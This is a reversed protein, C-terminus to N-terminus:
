LLTTFQWIFCRKVMVQHQYRGTRWQWKDWLKVALIYGMLIFNVKLTIWLRQRLAWIMNKGKTGGRRVKLRDGFIHQGIEFLIMITCWYGWKEYGGRMGRSRYINELKFIIIICRNSGGIIIGQEIDFIILIIWRYGGNLIKWIWWM